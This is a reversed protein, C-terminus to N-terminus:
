EDDETEDYPMATSPVTDIIEIVGSRGYLSPTILATYGGGVPSSWEVARRQPLACTSFLTMMVGGHMVATAEFVEMDMMKRIMKNLGLAIRRVFDQSNEGNPPCARGSIWEIYQPNDEIESAKKNEFDGFDFERLEPVIVPEADPFLIECTELCRKLPSTFVLSTEPLEGKVSIAQLEGIGSDSLPLDTVGIYRGDSNGDTLGHRIFHIRYTKM